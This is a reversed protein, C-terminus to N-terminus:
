SVLEQFPLAHAPTNVNNKQGERAEEDEELEEEQDSRPRSFTRNCADEKEESRGSTPLICPSVPNKLLSDDVSSHSM